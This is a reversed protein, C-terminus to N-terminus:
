LNLKAPQEWVGAIPRGCFSCMGQKLKNELIAYGMRKILVKKCGPCYTSEAPHGPVNGLYVYRLGAATAIAHCAELTKVPTPPLNTIKYMPHFRSFHLPVDSGLNAAIWQCMRQIEDSGDNLTPIILVVIEFWIGVRKLVTLTHLVPELEGSCYERYFKDSFAKLDIKVATLYRCLHV